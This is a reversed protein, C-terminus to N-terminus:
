VGPLKTRPVPTVVNAAPPIPPPTVTANQLPPLVGPETNLAIQNIHDAHLDLRSTNADSKTEAVAAQKAAQMSKWLGFITVAATVLSTILGEVAAPTWSTEALMTMEEATAAPFTPVRRAQWIALPVSLTPPLPRGYETGTGATM